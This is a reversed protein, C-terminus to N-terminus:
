RIIEETPWSFAKLSDSKQQTDTLGCLDLKRMSKIAADLSKNTPPTKAEVDAFSATKSLTARNLNDLLLQHENQIFNQLDEMQKQSKAKLSDISDKFASELTGLAPISELISQQTKSQAMQERLLTQARDFASTGVITKM